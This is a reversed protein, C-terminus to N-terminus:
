RGVEKVKCTRCLRRGDVELRAPRGCTTCPHPWPFLALEHKRERRVTVPAGYPQERRRAGSM